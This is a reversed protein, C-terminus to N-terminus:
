VPMSAVRNDHWSRVRGANAGSGCATEDYGYYRALVSLATKLMLKGSRAPWQREKEVEAVGRELCCVDLLIGSLEPGVAKLADSVRQRCDLATDKLRDSGGSFGSDARVAFEYNQTVRPQMGGRLFDSGLREGALAEARSLYAGGHSGDRSALRALPSDAGRKM